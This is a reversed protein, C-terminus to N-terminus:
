EPTPTESPSPLTEIPLQKTARVSRATRTRTGPPKKVASESTRSQKNLLTKQKKWLKTWEILWPNELLFASDIQKKKGSELTRTLKRWLKIFHKLGLEVEPWWEEKPKQGRLVYKEIDKEDEYKLPGILTMLRGRYPEIPTEEGRLMSLATGGAPCLTRNPNEALLKNVFWRASNACCRVAHKGEKSNIDNNPPRCMAVNMLHIRLRGLRPSKPSRENPLLEQLGIPALHRVRMYYGAKGQLPRGFPVGRTSLHSEEDGGPAEFIGIYEADPPGDHGVKRQGNLPCIHCMSRQNM